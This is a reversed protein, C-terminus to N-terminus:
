FTIFSVFVPLKDSSVGFILQIAPDARGLRDAYDNVATMSGNRFIPIDNYFLLGARHWHACILFDCSNEFCWNGLKARMAPTGDHPIGIHRVHGRWNKVLFNRFEGHGIDVDINDQEALFKIQQYVVNDWNSREDAEKSMRGHNGRVAVVRVKPFMKTSTKLFRYLERVLGVTQDIVSIIIHRGHSPYIGEGDVMDGAMVIVLEDIHRGVVTDLIKNPLEAIREEAIKPNYIEIGDEDLVVSGYHIDSLCLVLSENSENTKTNTVKYDKTSAVDVKISDFVKFLDQITKVEEKNTEKNIVKLSNEKNLVSHVAKKEEQTLGTLNVTQNLFHIFEKQAKRIISKKTRVYGLLDFVEKIQQFTLSPRLRILLFIERENWENTM